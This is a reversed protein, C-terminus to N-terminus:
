PTEKPITPPCLIAICALGAALARVAEAVDGGPIALRSTDLARRAHLATFALTRV